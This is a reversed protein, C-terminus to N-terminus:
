ELSIAVKPLNIPATTQQDKLPIHPAKNKEPSLPMSLKLNEKSKENWANWHTALEKQQKKRQEDISQEIQNDVREKDYGYTAKPLNPGGFSFVLAKKLEHTTKSQWNPSPPINKLADIIVIDLWLQLSNIIKIDAIKGHPDITIKCRMFGRVDSLSRGTPIVMKLNESIYGIMKNAQEDNGYIPSVREVRQGFSTLSFLTFILVVFHRM